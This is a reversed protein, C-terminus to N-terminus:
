SGYKEKLKLFTDYEKKDKKWLHLLSDVWQADTEYTQVVFSLAGDDGYTMDSTLMVDGGHNSAEGELLEIAQTLTLGDLYIYSYKSVQGRPHKQIYEEAVSDPMGKKILADKITTM